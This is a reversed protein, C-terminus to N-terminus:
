AIEATTEDDAEFTTGLIHDVARQAQGAAKVAAKPDSRLFKAWSLLYTASNPLTSEIGVSAALIAAGFEAVLEEFSYLTGRHDTTLKQIGERNLRSAHGTSHVLEHYLTSYYEDRGNINERYPINVQDTSPRYFAVDQRERLLEPANKYNLYVADFRSTDGDDVPGVPAPFLKSVTKPDADDWGAQSANFVPWLKPIRFIKPKGNKDLEDKNEIALWHVVKTSKEGRRVQGGLASIKKYTGWFPSTYGNEAATLGLLLPNIGRYARGTSISRPFGGAGAVYPSVWSPVSEGADVKAQLEELRAILKATVEENADLRTKTAATM